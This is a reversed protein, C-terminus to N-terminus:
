RFKTTVPSTEGFKFFYVGAVSRHVAMLTDPDDPGLELYWGQLDPM